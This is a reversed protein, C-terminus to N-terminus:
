GADREKNKTQPTRTKNLEYLYGFGLIAGVNLHFLCVFSEVVKNTLVGAMVLGFTWLVLLLGIKKTTKMEEGGKGSKGKAPKPTKDAGYRLVM